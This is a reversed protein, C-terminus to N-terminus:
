RNSDYLDCDHFESEIGGSHAAQFFFPHDNFTDECLYPILEMNGGRLCVLLIDMLDDDDANRRDHRVISKRIM